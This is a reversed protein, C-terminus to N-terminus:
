NQMLVRCTVTTGVGLESELKVYGHHHEAIHKVISLGLGTGGTKRSRSRDVRYFREFVREREEEPIGIGTDAVAIRCFGGDRTIIVTVQGNERNYKIGNELLNYLLEDLMRRNATMQVHEGEIAVKVYKEEAKRRLRMNVEVALGYLDFTSLDGDIDGEDFEALRIIDEIIHLLREAEGSIKGAFDAIDATKAMGSEIMESLASITTLPTKLEHSVNASFERRQKEAKFKDTTDFFLIVAGDIEDERYVPSFYINYIRDNRRFPMELSAGALCEKVGQQFEIERCLHLISKGVADNNHFIDIISRNATLVLGNKDIMTLGEKMNGTIAEITETRNKLDKIQESIKRKQQDIKRVYPLLEDYPLLASGAVADGNEININNLPRLINETLRQAVFHALLLTILTVALIASLISTFIATISRMTKSVRLVNGDKLKIAYYYTVEGLTSSYRIAEGRGNECAKIFEERDWHNELTEADNINDLLVVGDPAIVTIRITDSYDIYDIYQGGANRDLLGSVMKATERISSKEQNKSANSFILSVTISFLLAGLLILCLFNIYIRKKM